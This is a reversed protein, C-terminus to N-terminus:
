RAIREVEFLLPRGPQQARCTLFFEEESRNVEITVDLPGLESTSLRVAVERESTKAWTEPTVDDVGALGLERRVTIEAAQVAFPFTSWGRFRELDLIGHTYDEILEEVSSGTVRGFYAGRPLCVVNAAFRDGGIHSCEWAGDAYKSCLARAVPNGRVSCCRDHRGHTCVLYLADIADGPVDRGTDLADPGVALLAGIDDTSFVKAWQHGPISNAVFIKRPAGRRRPGRRILVVRANVVDSWAKVDDLLESPVRNQILADYGWPGPDEVLVWRKVQSATGALSEGHASSLSSCSPVRM